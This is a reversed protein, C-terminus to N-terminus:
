YKEWLPLMYKIWLDANSINFYDGSILKRIQKMKELVVLCDHKNVIKDPIKTKKGLELIRETFQSNISRILKKLEKDNTQIANLRYVNYQLTKKQSKPNFKKLDSAFESIKNVYDKKDQLTKKSNSFRVSAATFETIVRKDFYKKDLAYANQIALLALEYKRISIYSKWLAYYYAAEKIKEEKSFYKDSLSYIKLAILDSIDQTKNVLKSDNAIYRKINYIVKDQLTQLWINVEIGSQHNTQTAEIDLLLSSNLLNKGAGKNILSKEKLLSSLHTRELVIVKKQNIMARKLLSLFKQFDDSKKGSFAVSRSPAFAIIKQEGAILNDFKSFAQLIKTAIKSSIEDLDNGEYLYDVLRIGFRTEYIVSKKNTVVVFFNASLLQGIKIANKYSFNVNLKQEKLVANIRERELVDINKQTLKILLLDSLKSSEKDAPIVAIRQEKASLELGSIYLSILVFLILCVKLNFCLGRFM